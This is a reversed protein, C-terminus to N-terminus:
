PSFLPRFRTGEPFSLGFNHDLAELLGDEAVRTELPPRGPRRESLVEGRLVWRADLGSRQATLTRTFPSDPHTSTYHNAVVFDSALQAELTFAYLDRWGEPAAGQLVREEGEDVIRFAFVGQSVAPGPDIPLPEIPGDGGFGVDSLWGRGAVDVALLMHTRPGTKRGGARVRAALPTATFGLAQLAAQLLTNQEFCYGGRRSRVLKEQLSELDLRITRGLLIDLNEFPIRSVHALHIARLTELTPAPREAGAWGIRDLYAALDFAVASM